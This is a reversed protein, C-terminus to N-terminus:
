RYLMHDLRIEAARLNYGTGIPDCGNEQLALRDIGRYVSWLRNSSGVQTRAKSLFQNALTTCRDTAKAPYDNGLCCALVCSAAFLSKFLNM